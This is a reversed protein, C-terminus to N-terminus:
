PVLQMKKWLKKAFSVHKKIGYNVVIIYMTM